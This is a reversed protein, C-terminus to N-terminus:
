IRAVGGCGESLDHECSYNLGNATRQKEYCPLCELCALPDLYRDGRQDLMIFAGAAAAASRQGDRIAGFDEIIGMQSVAYADIARAQGNRFKALFAEFDAHRGFCEAKRIKSAQLFAALDVELPSNTRGCSHAPVKNLTM